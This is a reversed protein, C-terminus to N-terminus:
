YGTLLKLLITPQHYLCKKKLIWYTDVTTQKSCFYDYPSLLWLYLAWCGKLTLPSTRHKRQSVRHNNICWSTTWADYKWAWGYFDSSQHSLDLRWVYKPQLISDVTELWVFMEGRKGLSAELPTVTNGMSRNRIIEWGRAIKSRM